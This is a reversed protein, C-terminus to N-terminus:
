EQQSVAQAKLYKESIKISGIRYNLRYLQFSRYFLYFNNILLALPPLPVLKVHGEGKLVKLFDIM